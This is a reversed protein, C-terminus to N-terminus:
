GKCRGEWIRKMMGQIQEHLDKADDGADVKTDHKAGEIYNVLTQM